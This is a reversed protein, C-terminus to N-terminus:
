LWMNTSFFRMADNSWRTSIHRIAKSGSLTKGCHLTHTM